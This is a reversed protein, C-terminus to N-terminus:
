LGCKEKMEKETSRVNLLSALYADTEPLKGSRNLNEPHELRSFVARKITSKPVTKFGYGDPQNSSWFRVHEVGDKKELGMFIVSHGREQKGIENTWFIKLFDGPLAQSYDTFNKGLNLEHFLRATGPGNANWRGWIGEGDRQDRIVLSDLTEANLKLVGRKRLEELTRVFILYTAGSCFSPYPARPIHFFKGKVLDGSSQLQILALRNAAYRGGTPMNRVHGVIIPNIAPKPNLEVTQSHLAKPLLLILALFSLLKMRAM